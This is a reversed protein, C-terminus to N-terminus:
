LCCVQVEAQVEALNRELLGLLERRLSDSVDAAALADALATSPAPGPWPIVEPDPNSAGGGGAAGRRAGSSGGNAAGGEKGSDYLPNFHVDIPRRAQVEGAGELRRRSGPASPMTATGTPHIPDVPRAPGAPSASQDCAGACGDPWGSESSLSRALARRALGALYGESPQGSGSGLGPGRQRRARGRAGGCPSDQELHRAEAGVSGLSQRLTPDWCGSIGTNSTTQASADSRSRPLETHWGGAGAAGPEAAHAAGAAWHSSPESAPQEAHMRTAAEQGYEQAAVPSRPESSSSCSDAHRLHAADPAALSVSVAKSHMRKSGPQRVLSQISALAAAHRQAAAARLASRRAQDSGPSSEPKPSPYPELVPNSCQRPAQERPAEPAADATAPSSVAPTVSRLLAQLAAVLAASGEPSPAQPPQAQAAPEHNESGSVVVHAQTLHAPLPNGPGLVTWGPHLAACGPWGWSSPCACAAPHMAPYAAAPHVAAPYAGGPPPSVGLQQLPHAGPHQPAAPTSDQESGQHGLGPQGASAGTAAALQALVALALSGADAPSPAAAGASPSYVGATAGRGGPGASAAGAPSGAARGPPRKCETGGQATGVAGFGVSSGLDGSTPATPQWPTAADELSGSSAAPGPTAVCAPAGKHASLSATPDSQQGTPGADWAQGPAAGRSSPTPTAAAQPASANDRVREQTQTQVM